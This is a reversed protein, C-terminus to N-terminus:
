GKSFFVQWWLGKEIAALMAKDGARLTPFVLM